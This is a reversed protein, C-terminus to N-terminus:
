FTLLSYYWRSSTNGSNLNKRVRERGQQMSKNIGLDHSVLAHLLWLSNCNFSSLCISLHYWVMHNIRSDVKSLIIPITHDANKNCTLLPLKFAPFPLFGELKEAITLSASSLACRKHVVKQDLSSDIRTLPTYGLHCVSV